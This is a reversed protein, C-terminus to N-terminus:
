KPWKVTPDFEGHKKYHELIIWILKRCTGGCAGNGAATAEAIDDITLNGNVVAKEIVSRQVSNCRCIVPDKLTNNKNKSM